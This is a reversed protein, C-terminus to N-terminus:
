GVAEKETSKPRRRRKTGSGDVRGGCPRLLGGDLALWPGTVSEPDAALEAPTGSAIVRGGADGGAPGLEILRDCAGLLGVHHEILLVADGRAALRSLVAMLHEVDCAALGTSPEDLVVVSPEASRARLLEAALKVRQAEGASLTTSSQGLGLYGLGVDLMTQLVRALKPQHALFEAAEEVSMALVDAISRGRLKVELTEPRYRLGGCEECELWLDALFQMEVKTSGRGDCAKCRGKTSNFSFCAPTLGRMRAEPLRAYLDRLPDLLGVATAPVSSPTRGLPNSDVVVVRRGAGDVRKWRGAPREGKLAPV